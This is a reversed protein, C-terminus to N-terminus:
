EASRRLEELEDEYDTEADYDPDDAAILYGGDLLGLARIAAPFRGATHVGVSAGWSFGIWIAPAIGLTKVLGTALEALKPTAYGEAELAPSAGYGPADVAFVEM